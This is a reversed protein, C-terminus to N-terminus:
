AFLRNTAEVWAVVDGVKNVPVGKPFASQLIADTDVSNKRKAKPKAGDDDKPKRKHVRTYHAAAGQATPFTRECTTSACPHQEETTEAM